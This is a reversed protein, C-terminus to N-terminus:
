LVLAVVGYFVAYICWLSGFEGKKAVMFSILASIVGVALLPIGKTGAFFLPFLIGILYIVGIGYGGMFSTPTKKDHWILHGGKGKDSYIQGPTAGIVRFLLVYTLLAAYLVSLYKLVNSKTNTHGLYSQIFPQAFLILLIGKTFLENQTQNEKDLADWIGAESFQVLTFVLIFGANWRDYNKNRKYLYLGVVVAFIWAGISTLKNYCM